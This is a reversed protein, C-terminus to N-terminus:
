GAEEPLRKPIQYDIWQNHTSKVRKLPHSPKKPGKVWVTDFSLSMKPHIWQKNITIWQNHTSKVRKLPHPPKKLAKLGCQILPCVM